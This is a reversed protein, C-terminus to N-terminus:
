VPLECTRNICVVHPVRDFYQVISVSAPDIRFRLLFDLPIGLYHAILARLTDLHSVIGITDNPHWDLITEMERVMRTQAEIM